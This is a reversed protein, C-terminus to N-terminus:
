QNLAIALVRLGLLRTPHNEQFVPLVLYHEAGLQLRARRMLERENAGLLLLESVRRTGYDYSAVLSLGRYQFFTTSDLREHRQVLPALSPDAFGAPVPQHPGIRLTLEDVSLALLSPVNLASAEQGPSAAASVSRDRRADHSGSCAVVGVLAAVFILANVPRM